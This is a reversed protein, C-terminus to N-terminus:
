LQPSKLFFLSHLYHSPAHIFACSPNPYITPPCAPHVISYSPSPDSVSYTLKLTTKKLSQEEM